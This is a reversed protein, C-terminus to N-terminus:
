YIIGLYIGIGFFVLLHLLLMALNFFHQKKQAVLNAAFERVLANNYFYWPAKAGIGVARLGISHAIVGSRFVHYGTTAFVVRADKTRKDIIKKSFMMNERTNTSQNEPVIHQSEVHHSRLYRSMASAESTREDRGRGGSPVYVLPINQTAQTRGFDLARDLRGQLIPLPRGNKDVKCGLIIMYDQDLPPQYRESGLTCIITAIMMCELYALCLCFFAELFYVLVSLRPSFDDVIPALWHYINLAVVTGFLLGFGLVLGLNNTWRSGERRVLAINSAILMLAIVIILPSMFYVHIAFSDLVSTYIEEITFPHFFFILVGLHFLFNSLLFIIVGLNTMLSYSYMTERAQRLIYFICFALLIALIILKEFALIIGFYASGFYSRNILDCAILLIIFLIIAM